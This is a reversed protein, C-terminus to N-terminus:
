YNRVRPRGNQHTLQLRRQGAQKATNPRPASPPRPALQMPTSSRSFLDSFYPSKKTHQIGRSKTIEGVLRRMEYTQNPTLRLKDSHSNLKTSLRPPPASIPRHLYPNFEQIGAPHSKESKLFSIVIVYYDTNNGTCM